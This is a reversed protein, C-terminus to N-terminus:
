LNSYRQSMTFYHGTAEQVIHREEKIEVPIFMHVYILLTLKRLFYIYRTYVCDFREVVPWWVPVTVLHQEENYPYREQIIQSVELYPVFGWTRM